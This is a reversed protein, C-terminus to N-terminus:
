LRPVQKVKLRMAEPVTKRAELTRPDVVEM